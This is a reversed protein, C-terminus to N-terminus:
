NNIKNNFKGVFFRKGFFKSQNLIEYFFYFIVFNFIFVYIDFIRVFYIWKRVCSIIKINMEWITYCKFLGQSKKIM